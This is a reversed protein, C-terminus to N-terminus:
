LSAQGLGLRMRVDLPRNMTADGVGIEDAVEAFRTYQRHRHAMMRIQLGYRGVRQRRNQAALEGITDAGVPDDIASIRVLVVAAVDRSRQIKVVLPEDPLAQEIRQRGDYGLDLGVDLLAVDKYEM